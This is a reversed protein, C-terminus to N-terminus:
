DLVDGRGELREDLRSRRPRTAQELDADPADDANIEDLEAQGAADCTGDPNTTFLREDPEEAEDDDEEEDEDEDLDDEAAVNESLITRSDLDFEEPAALVSGVLGDIGAMESADGSAVTGGFAGGDEALEENTAGIHHEAIPEGREEADEFPVPQEPFPVADPAQLHSFLQREGDPTSVLVRDAIQYWEVDSDVISRPDHNAAITVRDDADVFDAGVIHLQRAVQRPSSLAIDVEDNAFRGGDVSVDGGVSPRM